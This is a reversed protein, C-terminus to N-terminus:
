SAVETEALVRESMSSFAGRSIRDADGFLRDAMLPPASRESCRRSVSPGRIGVHLRPWAALPGIGVPDTGGLQRWSILRAKPSREVIEVFMLEDIEPSRRSHLIRDCDEIRSDSGLTQVEEGVVTAQAGNQSDHRDLEVRVVESGQHDRPDFRRVQRGLLFLAANM